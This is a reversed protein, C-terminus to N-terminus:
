ICASTLASSPFRNRRIDTGTWFDLVSGTIDPASDTLTGDVDFLYVPFAM